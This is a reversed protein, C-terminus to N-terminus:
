AHGIRDTCHGNHQYDTHPVLGAQAQRYLPRQTPLPHPTRPRGTGTQITSMTNTTLTPHPTSHTGTGTQITSMTNTTLAPHPTHLAPGAQAQRYLPHQTPLPRPTRPRGTGTTQVTSMTNTTLTPHPISPTGSQVASMKNTTLAPHQAQRHRGTCGTNHQYGPTYVRPGARSQTASHQLSLQAVAPGEPLLKDDAPRQVRVEEPALRRM